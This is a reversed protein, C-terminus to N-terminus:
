ALRDSYDQLVRLALGSDRAEDSTTPQLGWYCSRASRLDFSARSFYVARVTSLSSETDEYKATSKVLNTMVGCFAVWRQDFLSNM